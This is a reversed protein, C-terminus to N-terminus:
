SCRLSEIIPEMDEVGGHVPIALCKEYRPKLPNGSWNFHYVTSDIRCQEYLKQKANQLKADSLNRLIPAIGPGAEGDMSKIMWKPWEKALPSNLLKTLNKRRHRREEEISGWLDNKSLWEILDPALVAAETKLFHNMLPSQPLNVLPPMKENRDNEIKFELCKGEQAAMGGSSLGLLKSFSTIRMTDKNLGFHASDVQDLIIAAKRFRKKVQEVIEDSVPWGWQEYIVIADVKIKHKLAERFPVPTSYKGVASIVCYSSWEPFAVRSTRSMGMSHLLSSLAQRGSPFVYKMNIPKSGPKLPILRPETKWLGIINIRKYRGSIIAIDDTSEALKGYNEFSIRGM